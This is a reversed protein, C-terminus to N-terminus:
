IHYHLKEFRRNFENNDMFNSIILQQLKPSLNNGNRGHRMDVAFVFKEDYTLYSFLISIYTENDLKPTRKIYTIIAYILLFFKVNKNQMEHIEKTAPLESKTAQTLPQSCIKDYFSKLMQADRANQENQKLVAEIYRFFLEQANDDKKEQISNTLALILGLFSAFSFFPGSIGSLYLGFNGWDISNKSFGGHFAIFYVALPAGLGFVLAIIILWAYRRTFSKESPLVIKKLINKNDKM